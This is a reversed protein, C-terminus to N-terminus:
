EQPVNGYIEEKAEILTLKEAIHIEADPALVFAPLHMSEQIFGRKVMRPICTTEDLCKKKFRLLYMEQFLRKMTGPLMISRFVVTM